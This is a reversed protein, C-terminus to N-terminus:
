FVEAAPISNGYLVPTCKKENDGFAVDLPAVPHFYAGDFMDYFIGYHEAIQCVHEPMSERNWEERMKVM